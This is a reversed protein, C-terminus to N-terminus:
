FSFNKISTSSGAQSHSFSYPLLLTMTAQFASITVPWESLTLDPWSEAEVDWDSVRLYDYEDWLSPLNKCCFQLKIDIMLWYLYLFLFDPDSLFFSNRQTLKKKDFNIPIASCLNSWSSQNIILLLETTLCDLVSLESLTLDHPPNDARGSSAKDFSCNIDMLILPPFVLATGLPVKHVIKHPTLDSPSGGLCVKLSIFCSWRCLGGGAVLM